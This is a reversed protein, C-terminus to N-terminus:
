VSVNSIRMNGELLNMGIVMVFRTSSAATVQGYIADIYEHYYASGNDAITYEGNSALAACDRDPLDYVVIPVLPTGGASNAGSVLDAIDPVKAAM